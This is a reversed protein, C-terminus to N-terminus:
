MSLFVSSVCTVIRGGSLVFPSMLGVLGFSITGGLFRERGTSSADVRLTPEGSVKEASILGRSASVQERFDLLDSFENLVAELSGWILKM